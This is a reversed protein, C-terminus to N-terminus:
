DFKKIYGIGACISDAEDNSVDKGLNNKVYDIALRKFDERKLKSSQIGIKSRWESAQIEEYDCGNLLAYGYIVGMIKALMRTSVMNRGVNLREVLVIDPKIKKLLGIISLCM